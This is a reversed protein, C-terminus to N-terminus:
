LDFLLGVNVAYGFYENPIILTNTFFEFDSNVRLFLKNSVKLNAGINASVTHGVLSYLNLGYSFTPRLFGKPYVYEVHLPIKRFNIVEGDTYEFSSFLVGTKFYLKESSSPMWIHALVGGQFRPATHVDSFASVGIGGFAVEPLVKFLPLKKEYIICKEGDCVANHYDSALNILNKREPKKVSNIRSQLQPADKMYYSLLGIHKKSEFYIQKGDVEKIGEEYPMEVMSENEKELYFHDGHTDRLYYMSVIGKILYEMFFSQGKIEKSIYYKGDKFRYGLIESPSYEVIAGENSKYKCISGMLLDGRYDIEGYLTDGDLALVYGPKYFTQADVFESVSILVILLFFNKFKM